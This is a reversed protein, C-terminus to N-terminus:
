FSQYRMLLLELFSITAAVRSEEFTLDIEEFRDNENVRFIRLVNIRLSDPDYTAHMLISRSYYTIIHMFYFTGAGDLSRPSGLWRPSPNQKEGM